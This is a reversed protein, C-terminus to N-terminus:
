NPQVNPRHVAQMISDALTAKTPQERYFRDSIKMVDAYWLYRVKTDLYMPAGIYHSTGLVQNLKKQRSKPAVIVLKEAMAKDAKLLELFRDLATTISTSHEVEFAFFPRKSDLWIMDIQPVVERVRKECNRLFPLSKISAQELTNNTSREKKGVHCLFGAKKGLDALVALIEDHSPMGAAGPKSSVPAVLPNDERAFGFVQQPQRQIVWFKGEAPEAIKRIEEVIRQKRPQEGNKLKPLVHFVIQDITAPNELRAAQNLFDM